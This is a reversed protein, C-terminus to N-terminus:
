SLRDLFSQLILAAALADEPLESKVEQKIRQSEISTYREDEEYIPQTIRQKLEEIFIRTKKFQESEVGDASYPLGVVVAEVGEQVILSALSAAASEANELDSIVKFPVATKIDADGIALGIKKDGYDVGLYRM